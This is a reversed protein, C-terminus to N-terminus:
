TEDLWDIVFRVTVGGLTVDVLPVLTDKSDQHYIERKIRYVHPDPLFHSMGRQVRKEKQGDASRHEIEYEPSKDDARQSNNGPAHVPHRQPVKRLHHRM